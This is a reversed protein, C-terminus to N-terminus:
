RMRRAGSILRQFAELNSGPAGPNNPNDFSPNVVQESRLGPVASSPTQAATEVRAALANRRQRIGEAALQRSRPDTTGSASAGM